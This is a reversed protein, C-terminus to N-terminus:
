VISTSSVVTPTPENRRKTLGSPRRKTPNSLENHADLHFFEFRSDSVNSRLFDIVPHSVDRQNNRRLEEPVLLEDV